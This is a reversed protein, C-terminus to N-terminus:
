AFSLSLPGLYLGVITAELLVNLTEEYLQGVESNAKYATQRHWLAM